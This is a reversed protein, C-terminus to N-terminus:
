LLYMAGEYQEPERHRFRVLCGRGRDNDWPDPSGLRADEQAGQQVRSLAAFPAVGLQFRDEGKSAFLRM